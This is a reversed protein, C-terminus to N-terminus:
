SIALQKYAFSVRELNFLCCTLGIRRLNLPFGCSRHLKYLLVPMLANINIRPQMNEYVNEWLCINTVQM